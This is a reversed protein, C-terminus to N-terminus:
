KKRYNEFIKIIKHDLPGLKLKKAEKIDFFAMNSGEELRFINKDEDIKKVYVEASLNVEKNNIISRTITSESDIHIPKILEFNLEEKIERVVADLPTEGEEIKGGFFTWVEGFKSFGKREQLLIKGSETYLVVISINRTKM